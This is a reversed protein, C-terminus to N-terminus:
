SKIKELRQQKKELMLKQRSEFESMRTVSNRLAKPTTKANPSCERTDISDFFHAQEIDDFNFTMPPSVFNHSFRVKQTESPMLEDFKFKLKRNELHGDLDIIEPSTEQQLSTKRLHKTTRAKVDIVYETPM